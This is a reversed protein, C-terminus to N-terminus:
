CLPGRTSSLLCVDFGFVHMAYFFRLTGIKGYFTLQQQKQQQQEQQMRM